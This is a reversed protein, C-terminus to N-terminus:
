IKSLSHLAWVRNGEAGLMSRPLSRQLRGASVAAAFHTATWVFASLHLSVHDRMQELRTDGDLVM